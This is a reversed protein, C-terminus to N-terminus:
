RRFAPSYLAPSHLTSRFGSAHAKYCLIPVSLFNYFTMSFGADPMGKPSDSGPNKRKDPFANVLRIEKEISYCMDIRINKDPHIENLHCIAM